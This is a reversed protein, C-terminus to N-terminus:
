GATTIRLEIQSPHGGAGVGGDTMVHPKPSAPVHPPVQGDPSVHEEGLGVM